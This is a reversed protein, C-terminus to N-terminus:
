TNLVSDLKLYYERWLFLIVTNITITFYYYINRYSKPTLPSVCQRETWTRKECGLVATSFYCRREWSRRFSCRVDSTLQSSFNDSLGVQRMQKTSNIVCTTPNVSVQLWLKEEAQGRSHDFCALVQGISRYVNFKMSTRCWRSPSITLLIATSGGAEIRLHLMNHRTHHTIPLAALNM